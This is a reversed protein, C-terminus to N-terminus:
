HLVLKLIKTSYIKLKMDFATYTVQYLATPDLHQDCKERVKSSGPCTSLKKVQTSVLSVVM